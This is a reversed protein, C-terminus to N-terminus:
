IIYSHLRFQYSGSNTPRVEGSGIASWVMKQGLGLSEVRLM